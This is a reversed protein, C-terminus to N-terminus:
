TYTQRSTQIIRRRSPLTARVLVLASLARIFFFKPTASPHHALAGEMATHAPKAPKVLLTLPSSLFFERLQAKLLRLIVFLVRKRPRLEMCSEKSTIILTKEPANISYDKGPARVVLNTQKGSFASSLREQKSKNCM